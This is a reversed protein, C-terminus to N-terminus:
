LANFRYRAGISFVNQQNEIELTGPFLANNVEIDETARYAYEGYIDIRETARFTAGVKVQYAFKTEGDDIIGVGSPAYEVDTDLFGIGAGVYPEIASGRAFDYYVNAFIGTSSIEGRGDAVLDGVSVGLPDPAGALAAADVADISGGGLTVGTHTDVDADTYVLEIGSRFGNDYRLGAEAALALGDDFATNWGYPTNAAVDLTSGDGLNGTTFAGTQGSNDSDNQANLGISGGVYWEQAVAPAAFLAACTVVGALFKKSRM